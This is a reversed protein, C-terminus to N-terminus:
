EIVPVMYPESLVALLIGEPDSHNVCHIPHRGQLYHSSKIALMKYPGGLRGCITESHLALTVELHWQTHRGGGLPFLLSGQSLGSFATIMM